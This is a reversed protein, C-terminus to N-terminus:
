FFRRCNEKLLKENMKLNISVPDEGGGYLVAPVLGNRRAERASGTGTDERVVVDLVADSM